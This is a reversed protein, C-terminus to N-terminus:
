KAEHCKSYKLGQLAEKTDELLKDRDETVFLLKKDAKRKVECGKGRVENLKRQLVHIMKKQESVLKVSQALKEFDARQGLRVM